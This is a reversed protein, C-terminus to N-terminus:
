THGAGVSISPIYRCGVTCDLSASATYVHEFAAYVLICFLRFLLLSAIRGCGVWSYLANEVSAVESDIGLIRRLLEILWSLM